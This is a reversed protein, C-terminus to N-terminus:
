CLKTKTMAFRSVGLNCPTLKVIFDICVNTLNRGSHYTSAITSVIYKVVCIDIPVTWKFNFIRGQRVLSSVNNYVFVRLLSINIKLFNSM